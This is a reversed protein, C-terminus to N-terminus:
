KIINIVLLALTIVSAILTIIFILRLQKKNENITRNLEEYRKDNNTILESINNIKELLSNIRNDLKEVQVTVQSVETNFKKLMDGTLISLVEKEIQETNLLLKNVEKSILELNDASKNLYITANRYNEIEQELKEIAQKAKEFKNVVESAINKDM